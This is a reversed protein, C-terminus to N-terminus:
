SECFSPANFFEVNTIFWNGNVQQITITQPLLQPETSQILAGDSRRYTSTTWTECSDVELHQQNIIRIDDIYSQYYNIESIQV